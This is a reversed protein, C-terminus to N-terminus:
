VKYSRRGWGTESSAVISNGLQPLVTARLYMGRDQITDLTTNIDFCLLDLRSRSLDKLGIHRDENRRLVKSINTQTLDRKTHGRYM